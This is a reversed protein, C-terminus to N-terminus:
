YPNGAFLFSDEFSDMKAQCCPFFFVGKYPNDINPHCKGISSNHFM